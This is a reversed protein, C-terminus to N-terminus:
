ISSKKNNNNVDAGQSLTKEVSITWSVLIYADGYDCLSAKLMSTKSKIQSGTNYTGCFDDKGVWNRTRFKTPQSPLNHSLNILKQYEM